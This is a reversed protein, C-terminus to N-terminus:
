VEVAPQLECTSGIEQKAGRKEHHLKHKQKKM